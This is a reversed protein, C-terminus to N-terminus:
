GLQSSPCYSKAPVVAHLWVAHDSLILEPTLIYGLTSPLDCIVGPVGCSSWWCNCFMGIVHFIVRLHKFKASQNCVEQPIVLEDEIMDSAFSDVPSHGDSLAKELRRGFWRNDKMDSQSAFIHAAAKLPNAEHSDGAAESDSHWEVSGMRQATDETYISYNGEYEEELMSNSLLKEGFDNDPIVLTTLPGTLQSTSSETTLTRDLQTSSTAAAQGIDGSGLPFRQRIGSTALKLAGSIDDSVGRIQRFMDDMADDVNM